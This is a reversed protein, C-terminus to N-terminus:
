GGVNCTACRLESTARISSVVGSVSGVRVGPDCAAPGVFPVGLVSGPHQRTAVSGHGNHDDGRQQEQYQKAVEVAAHAHRAPPKM